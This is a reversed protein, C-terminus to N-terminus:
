NRYTGNSGVTMDLNRYHVVNIHNFWLLAIFVDVVETLMEFKLGDLGDCQSM